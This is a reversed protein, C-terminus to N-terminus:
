ISQNSKKYHSLAKEDLTPISEEKKELDGQHEEGGSLIYMGPNHLRPHEANISPSERRKPAKQM